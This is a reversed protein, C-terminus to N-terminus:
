NWTVWVSCRLRMCFGPAREASFTEGNLAANIERFGPRHHCEKGFIKKLKCFARRITRRLTKRKVIKHIIHRLEREASNKEKDLAASASQLARISERLSSFDVDLSSASAISEM